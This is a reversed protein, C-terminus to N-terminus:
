QFPGDPTGQKGVLPALFAVHRAEIGGVSMVKMNFAINDFTGVDAQYTSAAMRELDYALKIVDAETKVTALRPAVLQNMLVPNPATYAEGGASRTTNQFLQSHDKHHA